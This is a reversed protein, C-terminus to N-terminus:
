VHVSEYVKSVTFFLSLTLAFFVLCLFGGGMQMKKELAGRQHAAPGRLHPMVAMSFTLGAL